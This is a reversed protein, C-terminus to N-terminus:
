KMLDKITSASEIKSLLTKLTMKKSLYSFDDQMSIIIKTESYSYIEYQDIEEQPFKTALIALASRLIIQRNMQSQRYELIVQQVRKNFDAKSFEKIVHPMLISLSDPDYDKEGKDDVFIEGIFNKCYYQRCRAWDPEEAKFEELCDRLEYAAKRHARELRAIIEGQNM